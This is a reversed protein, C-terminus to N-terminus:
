PRDRYLDGHLDLTRTPDVYIDYARTGYGPAEIEVRHPGVELTLRQFVGDFDDVIGAYYGDVYVAADAPTVKLRVDGFYRRASYPGPASYGYVPGYFPSGYRYGSGVSFYVSLGPGPGYYRRPAYYRPGYYRPPAIVRPAVVVRPAVYVSGGGRPGRQSGGRQVGGNQPGGGQPGGRQPGGSHPGGRPQASPRPQAQTGQGRGSSSPQRRGDQAEASLGFSGVMLVVVATQIVHTLRM